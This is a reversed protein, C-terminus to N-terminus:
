LSFEFLDLSFLQKYFSKKGYSSRFLSLRQVTSRKLFRRNRAVCEWVNPIKVGGDKGAHFPCTMYIEKYNSCFGFSLLVVYKFLKM